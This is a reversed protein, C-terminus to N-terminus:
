MLPYLLIISNMVYKEFKESDMGGKENAGFTVPVLASRCM